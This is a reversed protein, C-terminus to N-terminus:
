AADLFYGGGDGAESHIIAEIGGRVGVGLYYPSLINAAMKALERSECKASLRRVVTNDRIGRDKKNGAHLREGCIFPAM